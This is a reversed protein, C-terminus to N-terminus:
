PQLRDTETEQGGSSIIIEELAPTIQPVADAVRSVLAREMIDLKEKRINAKVEISPNFTMWQDTQPDYAPWDTLGAGNPDGTKAFNTWYLGMAQTLAVDEDTLGALPSHSGFVFFIESAHFAGITQSKSPPVRTFHYLYSPM